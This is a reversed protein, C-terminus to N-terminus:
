RVGRPNRYYGGFVLPNPTAASLGPEAQPPPPSSTPKAGLAIPKTHSTPKPTYPRTRKHTARTHELAHAWRRSRYCSGNDTLVRQIHTIGHEAFFGAARLWFDAATAGTEDDRAETYAWGPIITSRPTCTPTASGAQGQASASPRSSKRTAKGTPGGAAAPPSAASRPSPARTRDSATRERRRRATRTDGRARDHRNIDDVYFGM